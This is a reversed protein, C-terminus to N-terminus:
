QLVWGQYSRRLKKRVVKGFTPDKVQEKSIVQSMLDKSSVLILKRKLEFQEAPMDKVAKLATGADGVSTILQNLADVGQTAHEPCSELHKCWTCHDGAILPANPDDTLCAKTALECVKQWLEQVTMEVFRIPNNVIKPQIITMRITQIFCQDFPIPNGSVPDFLYVAVKGGAYAILQSNDVVDVYGQGDKYDAVELVAGQVQVVPLGIGIEYQILGGLITSITIDCTGWWDDRGFYQGPNSHSEPDVRIEGLQSRRLNVYDLAMNVRICRDMAVVWGSPKDHHGVGITQGLFQEARIAPNRTELCLELLLHSGTGDIAADGAVDPYDAEVRPAGPCKSWRPSSPSLRAHAEAM